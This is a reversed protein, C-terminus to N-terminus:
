KSSAIPAASGMTKEPAKAPATSNEQASTKLELALRRRANLAVKDGEDLGSQIVIFKENNDGVNVKKKTAVSGNM